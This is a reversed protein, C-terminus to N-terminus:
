PRYGQGAKKLDSEIFPAMEQLQRTAKVRTQFNDDKLADILRFASSTKTPYLQLRRLPGQPSMIRRGAIPLVLALLQGAKRLVTLEEGTGSLQTWKWGPFGSYGNGPRM